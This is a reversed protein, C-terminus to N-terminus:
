AAYAAVTPLGNARKHVHDWGDLRPDNIKM